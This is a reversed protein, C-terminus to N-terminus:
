TRLDSLMVRNARICAPELSPRRGIIDNIVFVCGTIRAIPTDFLKCLRTEVSDEIECGDYHIIICYIRVCTRLEELYDGIAVKQPSPTTTTHREQRSVAMYFCEFKVAVLCTRM